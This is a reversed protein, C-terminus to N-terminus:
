PDGNLEKCDISASAFVHMITVCLGWDKEEVREGSKRLLKM